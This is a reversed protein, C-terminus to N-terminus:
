RVTFLESNRDTAEEPKVLRVKEGTIMLSLLIISMCWLAATKSPTGNKRRRHHWKFLLVLVCVLALLM